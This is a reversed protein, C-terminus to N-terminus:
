LAPSFYQNSLTTYQFPSTIVSVQHLWAVPNDQLYCPHIVLSFSWNRLHYNLPQDAYCFIFLLYSLSCSSSDKAALLRSSSSLPNVLMHPYFPITSGTYPCFIFVKTHKQLNNFQLSTPLHPNRQCPLVPTVMSYVILLIIQDILSHSCNLTHSWPCFIKALCHLLHLHFASLCPWTLSPVQVVESASEYLPVVWPRAKPDGHGHLGKQGYFCNGNAQRLVSFFFSSFPFM